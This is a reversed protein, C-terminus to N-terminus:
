PRAAKRARDRAREITRESVGARRAAEANSLGPSGALVADARAAPGSRAPPRGHPRAPPRGPRAPRRAPAKAPPRRLRRRRTGSRRDEAGGGDGGDAAVSRADRVLRVALEVSGIFAGAPWASLAAGIVASAVPSVWQPPLAVLANAGLTATIGAWLMVRALPPTRMPRHRAAFLMVLSAEAIVGDLSLPLLCSQIGDERHAAALAHVHTYSVVAAFLIVASVVTTMAWTIVRDGDADRLRRRPAAAPAAAPRDEPPLVPLDPRTPAPPGLLDPLTVAPPRFPVTFADATM